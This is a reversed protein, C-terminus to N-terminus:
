FDRGAIFKSAFPCSSGAITYKVMKHHSTDTNVQINGKQLGQIKAEVAARGTSAKDIEIEVSEAYFLWSAIYNGRIKAKYRDFDNKKLVMLQEDLEDRLDVLSRATVNNFTFQKVSEADIDASLDLNISPIKLDNESSFENRIEVRPVSAAGLPISKLATELTSKHPDHFHNTMRDMVRELRNSFLGRWDWLDGLFIDDASVPLLDVGYTREFDRKLMNIQNQMTGVRSHTKPKGCYSHKLSFYSACDVIDLLSSVKGAQKEIVLVWLHKPLIVARKESYGTGIKGFISM